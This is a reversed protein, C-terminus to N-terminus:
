KPMKDHGESDGNMRVFHWIRDPPVAAIIEGKIKTGAAGKSVALALNGIVKSAYAVGKSHAKDRIAKAEESGYAIRSSAPTDSDSLSTFSVLQDGFGFRGCKKVTGPGENM